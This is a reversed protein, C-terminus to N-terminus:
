AQIRQAKGLAYGFVVSAKGAGANARWWANLEDFVLQQPQWRYIPLGFTSETVFSHCKVLEFPTCTPDAEIQYDGTVVWVEGKYELRGQGSGGIHGAPALSVRGGNIMVPQGDAVT